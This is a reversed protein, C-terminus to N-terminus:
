RVLMKRSATIYNNDTRVNIQYFYIGASINKSGYDLEYIGAAQNKNVLEEVVRGYMDMVKLSVFAQEPVEYTITTYYSFPNPYNQYLVENPNVSKDVFSAKLDNRGMQYVMATGLYYDRKYFDQLVNNEDYLEISEVGNPFDFVFSNAKDSFFSSNAFIKLVQNEVRSSFRISSKAQWYDAHKTMEMPMIDSSMEDLLYIMADLKFNRNPHILVTSPANNNAYKETVRIWLEAKDKWNFEDIPDGTYSGLVDSCTIPTEMVSLVEGNMARGAHMFYPFSTLVNRATFSSSYKFGLNELIDYQLPNVALHGSRHCVVNTNLDKELLMKSIGFEGYVTGGVTRGEEFSFHPNYQSISTIPEGEPFVEGDHFDPFHGYSHSGIVHNRNLLLRMQPIHSTYNDGNIDDIFQHTTINYTASFGRNYEEQAFDNSFIHATHSCVDHTLILVSKSDYPAPSLWVAHDIVCTYIGRILLMMVDSTADFLEAHVRSANFDRNLLNRIIVDRLSFGLTYVFGGNRQVKLFGARNDQFMSLVEADTVRYGFTDFYENYTSAGLKIEREYADDIWRMEKHNYPSTFSMYARHRGIQANEIGALEFLRNDTLGSFVVSGGDAVFQILQGVEDNSLDGESVVSPFLIMGYGLAENLDSTVTAPIGSVLLLQDVSSKNAIYNEDMGNGLLCVAMKRDKNAEVQSYAFFPITVAIVIITLIFHKM